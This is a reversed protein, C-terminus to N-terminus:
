TPPELNQSAFDFIFHFSNQTLSSFPIEMGIPPSGVVGDWARFIRFFGAPCLKNITLSKAQGENKKKNKSFFYHCFLTAGGRKKKMNNCFFCCM